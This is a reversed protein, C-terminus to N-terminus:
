WDVRCRLASFKYREYDVGNHCGWIKRPTQETNAYYVYVAYDPICFM